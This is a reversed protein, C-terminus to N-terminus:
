KEAKYQELLSTIDSRYIEDPLQRYSDTMTLQRDYKNLAENLNAIAKEVDGLNRYCIANYYNVESIPNYNNQNVFLDLAKKYQKLELYLVGLHLMVYGDQVYDRSSITSEIVQIAKEPQDLGKYCLGKIVNLHYNGDGTQGIDYPVLRELAEIDDIAKQYNHMFFWHYWGRWGLHEEPNIEVAKNMIEYWEHILGMKAYPVSLEFYAFAFDPCLDISKLLSAQFAVSGPFEKVGLEAEKCAQYCPDNKAYINCNPFASAKQPLSLLGMAIILLRKM